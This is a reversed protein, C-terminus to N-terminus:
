PWRVRGRVPVKRRNRAYWMFFATRLAAGDSVGLGARKLEQLAAYEEGDLEVAIRRTRIPFNIFEPVYGPVPRLEEEFAAFMGDLYRRRFGDPLGGREDAWATM